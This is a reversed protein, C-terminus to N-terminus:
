KPCKRRPCTMRGCKRPENRAITRPTVMLARSSEKSSGLRILVTEGDRVRSPGRSVRRDDVEYNLVLSMSDGSFGSPIIEYTLTRVDLWAKEKVIMRKAGDDYQRNALKIPKSFQFMLRPVSYVNKDKNQNAITSKLFFTEIMDLVLFDNSPWTNHGMEALLTHDVQIVDVELTLRREDAM